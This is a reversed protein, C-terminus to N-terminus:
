SSHIHEVCAATYETCNSYIARALEEGDPNKKHIPICERQFGRKYRFETQISVCGHLIVAPAKYGNMELWTFGDEHTIVLGQIKKLRRLTEAQGLKFAETQRNTQASRDRRNCSCGPSGCSPM